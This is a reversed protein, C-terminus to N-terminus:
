VGDGIMNLQCVTGERLSLLCKKHNQNPKCRSPRVGRSRLPTRERRKAEARLARLARAARMREIEPRNHSTVRGKTLLGRTGQARGCIEGRTGGFGAYVTM